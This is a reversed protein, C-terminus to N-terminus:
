LTHLKIYQFPRVEIKQSSFLSPHESSLRTMIAKFLHRQVAPVDVPFDYAFTDDNTFDRMTGETPVTFRLRKEKFLRQIYFDVARTTNGERRKWTMGMDEFRKNIFDPIDANVRYVLEEM